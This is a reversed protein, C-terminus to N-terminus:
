WVQDRWPMPRLDRYRGEHIGTALRIGMFAAVLWFVGAGGLGTLFFPIREYALGLVAMPVFLLFAIGTGALFGIWSKPKALSM